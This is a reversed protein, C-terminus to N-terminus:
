VTLALPVVALAPEPLTVTVAEFCFVRVVHGVVADVQRLVGFVVDFLHLHWFWRQCDVAQGEVAVAAAGIDLLVRSVTVTAPSSLM